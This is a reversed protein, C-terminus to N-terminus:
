QSVRFIYSLHNIINYLTISFRYGDTSTVFLCTHCKDVFFKTLEFEEPLRPM